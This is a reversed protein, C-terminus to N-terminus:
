GHSGFLDVMREMDPSAQRSGVRPHTARVVYGRAAGEAEPEVDKVVYHHMSISSGDRFFPAQQQPCQTEALFRVGIRVKLWRMRGGTDM